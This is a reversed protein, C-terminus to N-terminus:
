ERHHRVVHVTHYGHQDQQPFASVEANADNILGRALANFDSGHGEVRRVIYGDEVDELTYADPNPLQFSSVPM